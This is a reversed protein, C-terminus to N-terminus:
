NKKPMECLSRCIYDVEAEALDPYLPLSLCDNFYIENNKYGGATFMYKERVASFRYLPIFHVSCGIQKERLRAIVEDRTLSLAESVRVVALHAASKYGSPTQQFIFGAPELRERYRGLLTLRKQHNESLTEVQALALAANIDAMNYKYGFDKVDYGWGGGTYRGWAESSMGHLSLLRAKESDAQDRCFLAGGEGATLNKTAYFSYAAFDAKYLSSSGRYGAELAHANDLILKLGYRDCIERLGDVPPLLGAFSVAIVAKTQATIKEKVKEPDINFTQLDIDALVPVAGRHHVVELTSIFTNSPLIVEDGEGVGSLEVALSLAATASSVCLISEASLYRNLFTELRRSLPGSTFWSNALADSWLGLAKQRDVGARFFPVQM